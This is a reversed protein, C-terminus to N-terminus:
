KITIIKGRMDSACNSTVVGFPTNVPGIVETLKGIKDGDETYVSVNTEPVISLKVILKDGLSRFGTGIKEMEFKNDGIPSLYVQM